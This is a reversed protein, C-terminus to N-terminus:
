SQSISKKKAAAWVLGISICTYLVLILNNNIAKTFKRMQAMGQVKILSFFLNYFFEGTCFLFLGCVIWFLPDRIIDTNDDVTFLEYFYLCCLIIVMFAGTVVNITCLYYTGALLLNIGVFVPYLVLFGLAACRFNKKRLALYLMFGFFLFEAPISFNYLWTNPAHLVRRYYRGILEVIVISALFFPIWTASSHRTLRWCFLGVLLAGIEFWIHLPLPFYAPYTKNLYVLLEVIFFGTLLLSIKKWITLKGPWCTYTILLILCPLWAYMPIKSVSLIHKGFHGNLSASVAGTFFFPIWRFWSHSIRPWSVISILTVGSLIWIYIPLSFM